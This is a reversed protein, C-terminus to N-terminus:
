AVAGVGEVEELRVSPVLLPPLDLAPDARLAFRQDWPQLSPEGRVVALGQSQDLWQAEPDNPGVELGKQEIAQRLAQDPEVIPVPVALEGKPSAQPNASGNSPIAM